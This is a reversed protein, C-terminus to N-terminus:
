RTKRQSCRQSSAVNPHRKKLRGSPEQELIQRSTKLPAVAWFPGHLCRGSKALKSSKRKEEIPGCCKLWPFMSSSVHISGVKRLIELDLELEMM